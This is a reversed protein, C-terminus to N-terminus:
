RKVQSFVAVFARAVAEARTSGRYRAVMGTEWNGGHCIYTKSDDEEPEIMPPKCAELAMLFGAAEMADLMVFCARADALDSILELSASKMVFHVSNCTGDAILEHHKEAGMGEPACEAVERLLEVREAETM